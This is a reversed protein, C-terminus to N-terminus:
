ICPIKGLPNWNPEKCFIFVKFSFIFVDRGLFCKFIRIIEDDDTSSLFCKGFLLNSLSTSSINFLGKFNNEYYFYIKYIVKLCIM